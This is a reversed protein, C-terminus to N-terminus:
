PLESTAGFKVELPSECPKESPQNHTIRCSHLDSPFSLMSPMQPGERTDQDHDLEVEFVTTASKSLNLTQMNSKEHKDNEGLMLFNFAPDKAGM